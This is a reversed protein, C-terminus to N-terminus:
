KSRPAATPASPAPHPTYSPHSAAPPPATYVPHPASPPPPTYVPHTAAPPPAVTRPMPPQREMSRPAMPQFTRPAPHSQEVQGQSPHAVPGSASAPRGPQGPTAPVSPVNSRYAGSHWGPASRGPMTGQVTGHTIATNGMVPQHSTRDVPFDRMLSAGVASGGRSTYANGIPRLPEVTRGEITHPGRAVQVPASPFHGVHVPVIPHVGGPGRVPLPHPHYGLPPRVINIVYVTNGFGWGGFGCNAGPMWGWGFGGWYSWNGCRYPTWGWGYGSAWVYGAGQSWVWSGFGYPDFGPDAAVAPQWVTGQGPVDYWSGNADLDSWGYGQDGAFNDRAATRNASQDLAAQDREENWSDWSDPAIEHTLYYRNFDSADAALTEGARVDTRYGGGEEASVREVHVRGTVVAIKAPPEDLDIRVTANEVPSVEDGGAYLRYSYKSAARLEAYALGRVLVLQTQFTGGGDVSLNDLSLSSNPTMRVLSGDEFEIEAQGDDGTTLRLGQVLPMNVQAAESGTNDIHEVSVSGHLYSLRVARQSPADYGWVATVAGALWFCFLGM